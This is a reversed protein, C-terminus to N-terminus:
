GRRNQLPHKKWKGWRKVKCKEDAFIVKLAVFCTCLKCQDSDSDYHDCGNHCKRSREDQVEQPVIVREGRIWSRFARWMAAVFKFPNPFIVEAEEL